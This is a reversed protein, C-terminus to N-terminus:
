FRSKQLFYGFVKLRYINECFLEMVSAQSLEWYVCQVACLKENLVEETFTALDKISFKM